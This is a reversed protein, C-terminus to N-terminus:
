KQICEQASKFRVDQLVTGLRDGPQRHRLFHEMREIYYKIKGDEEEWELEHMRGRAVEEIRRLEVLYEEM